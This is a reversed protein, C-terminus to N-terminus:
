VAITVKLWTQCKQQWHQVTKILEELLYSLTNTTICQYALFMIVLSLHCSHSSSGWLLQMHLLCILLYAPRSYDNQYAVTIYLIFSELLKPLSWITIVLLANRSHYLKHNDLSANSLCSNDIFSAFLIKGALYSTFLLALISYIIAHYLVAYSNKNYIIRSLLFGIMIIIGVLFQIKYWHFFTAHESLIEKKRFLNILM